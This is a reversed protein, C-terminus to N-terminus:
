VHNSMLTREVLLPPSVSFLLLNFFSLFPSHPPSGATTSSDTSLMSVPPATTINTRTNTATTTSTTMNGDIIPSMAKSRVSGPLFGGVTNDLFSKFRNMEPFVMITLSRQAQSIGSTTNGVRLVAVQYWSGDVKCMLPGGANTEHLTVPGTCISDSAVSANECDVVSTQFEQLVQEEGGRQSSWGAIWCISNVPFNQGSDMCIPQIYDSLTPRTALHLVAVNSGTLNSLTINTVKLKIEFPNSGNQKLRGLIVTWESPNTSSLFCGAASLVAQEAVLTGGCVHSGNRQLSAMWPWEGAIAASNAGLTQSNLPAQGCLVPKSTVIAPVPTPSPPIIKAVTQISTVDTCSVSLDSDTGTSTYIIFGPQNSTIHSKIWTEYVSVRTYVGPSNPQACGDGFSVIGAQVWVINNKIVLPGGSDGQCTDKRGERLGACITNNTIVSAGYDCKCRRPGVIPVKVEQLTQPSPLSATESIMGWGTVYSDTGTNFTSGSASLCVPLIYTTFFVTDSLELLSIDNTFGSSLYDPHQIIQAVSRSVENPNFGQQVLRGLYVTWESETTGSTCHAATM